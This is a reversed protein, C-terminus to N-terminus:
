RNGAGRFHGARRALEMAVIGVVLCVLLGPLSAEPGFPGGTLWESAGPRATSSAISPGFDTGSVAAGFVYGQTFNWAAHIGISVWLRGTLAYFAGLMIGAELAICIAAFVTANPNGLHGFGFLAASAAFAMWPGFARWVLRLMVARILLEEVVGSQIAKGLSLWAPAAGLQRIDYLDFVAMIAMVTAFMLSGILLGITVEPVLPRLALESPRRGEAVWVALAYVLLASVAGLAFAACRAPASTKPWAKGLMESIPFSSAIILCFLVVMWGLARLWRFKGPHLFKREGLDPAHIDHGGTLLHSLAARRPQSNM